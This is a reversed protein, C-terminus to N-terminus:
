FKTLLNLKWIVFFYKNDGLFLDTTLFTAFTIKKNM